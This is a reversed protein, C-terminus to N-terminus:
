HKISIIHFEDLESIGKNIQEQTTEEKEGSKLRPKNRYSKKKSKKCTLKSM